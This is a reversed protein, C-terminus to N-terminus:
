MIVCKPFSPPPGPLALWNGSATKKFSGAEDKIDKAFKKPDSDFMNKDRKFEGVLLDNINKSCLNSTPTAAAYGGRHKCKTKRGSKKEYSRQQKKTKKEQLIAM